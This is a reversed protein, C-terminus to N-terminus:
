LAGRLPPIGSPLAERVDDGATGCHNFVTILASETTIAQNLNRLEEAPRHLVIEHRGAEQVHRDEVWACMQCLYSALYPDRVVATVHSAPPTLRAAHDSVWMSLLIGLRLERMSPHTYADVVVLEAQTHQGAPPSPLLGNSRALVLVALLVDGEFLGTVCEGPSPPTGLFAAIHLPASGAKGPARADLARMREQVLTVAAQRDAATLLRMVYM